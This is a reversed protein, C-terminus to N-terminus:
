NPFSTEGEDAARRIRPQLETTDKMQELTKGKTECVTLWVFPLSIAAAIAYFAYAGTLGVGNLLPLFTVTVTFHAAWNTADSIGLAAARIESPFLEGVFVWM